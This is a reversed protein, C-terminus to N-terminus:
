IKVRNECANHFKLNWQLSLVRICLFFFIDTDVLTHTYSQAIESVQKWDQADNSNREAEAVWRQLDKTGASFM